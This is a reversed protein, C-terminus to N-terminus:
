GRTMETLFNFTDDSMGPLSEHAFDPYLRMQKPCTLKNYAAFQTSPPCITDMLGTAFLVDARVRQALFQIDIYGLREFIADEREHRPDFARFFTHLEAYAGKCLDMEWVRRYDSLFPYVIVARRLRPELAACALTLAGGQSGGWAGVRAADVEPLAMVARALQATDLFAGRYFLKEPSDDLGRIIHGNLTTGRVAGSDQSAGGQGRVDLAAISLGEGVYPLYECWDGSRGSYGHFHLVAPHPPAANKPRLYKAHIRAGGVGQFYLDFAEANGSRLTPNPILETQPDIQALEALAADWYADFDAPRPNSGRYVHLESLPKDTLPM